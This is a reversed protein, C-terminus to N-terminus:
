CPGLDCLELYVRGKYLYSESFPISKATSGHAATESPVLVNNAYLTKNHMVLQSGTCAGM